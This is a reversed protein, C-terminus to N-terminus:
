PFEYPTSAASSPPLLEVCPQQPARAHQQQRLPEFGSQHKRRRALGKVPRGAEETGQRHGVEAVGLQTGAQQHGPEQGIRHQHQHCAKGLCRGLPIGESSGASATRASHDLTDAVYTALGTKANNLVAGHIHFFLSSLRWCVADSRPLDKRRNSHPIYSISSPM